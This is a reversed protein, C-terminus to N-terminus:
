TFFFSAFANSSAAAPSVTECWVAFSCSNDFHRLNFPRPGGDAIGPAQPVVDGVIGFSVSVSKHLSDDLGDFHSRGERKQAAFHRFCIVVRDTFDEKV